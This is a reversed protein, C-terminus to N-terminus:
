HKDLWERATRYQAFRREERRFARTHVIERIGKIETGHKVHLMEHFLIYRVVHSPIASSDLFRSIFIVDQDFDYHGM